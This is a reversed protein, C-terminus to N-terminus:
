RRRGHRDYRIEFRRIWVPDGTTNHLSITAGPSVPHNFVRSDRDWKKKVDTRWVRAGDIRVELEGKLGYDRWEGVMHTVREAGRPLRFRLMRTPAPCPRKGVPNGGLCTEQQIFGHSYGTAVSPLSRRTRTLRGDLARIDQQLHVLIFEAEPDLVFGRTQRVNSFAATLAAYQRRLGAPSAYRSQQFRLAAEHLARTRFDPQHALLLSTGGVIRGTLADLETGQAPPPGLTWALIVVLVLKWHLYRLRM